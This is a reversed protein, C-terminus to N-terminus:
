IAPLPAALYSLGKAGAAMWRSEDEFQKLILSLCPSGNEFICRDRHLWIL